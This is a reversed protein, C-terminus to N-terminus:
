GNIAGAKELLNKLNKYQWFFVQKRSISKTAKVGMGKDILRFAKFYNLLALQAFPVFYVPLKMMAYKFTHPELTMFGSYGRKVLEPLIYDYRGEGLGVPVEVGYRSCDKIHYYVTYDKLMDFAAAPDVGCQVYNSADFCLVFNDDAIENYLKLVREPVDGFIKKENEHMLKVGSGRVLKLMEKTRAVVKDFCEEPDHKGYYFSFVRIYKCHMLGAISVLQELQKLQKEFGEDDDIDVKGIPSGISSFKIGEKLLRPHVKDVFEAFTYDAINKGDINRPCMYSENLKKLAAIQDDLKSSVEDYFGSITINPDM